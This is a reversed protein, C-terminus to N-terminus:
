RVAASIARALRWVNPVRAVATPGVDEVEAAPSLLILAVAVATKVSKEIM